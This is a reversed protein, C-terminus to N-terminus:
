ISLVTVPVQGAPVVPGMYKNKFSKSAQKNYEHVYIFIYTHTHM